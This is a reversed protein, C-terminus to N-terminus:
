MGGATQVSTTLLKAVSPRMFGLVTEPYLGIVLVLFVLSALIAAERYNLDLGLRRLGQNPDGLAVRYYLWLIYTTGLAVGLVAMVGLWPWRRFAGSIIM